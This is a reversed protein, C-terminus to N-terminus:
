KSTFEVTAWDKWISLSGIISMALIHLAEMQRGTAQRCMKFFM